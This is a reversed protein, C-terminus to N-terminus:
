SILQRRDGGVPNSSINVSNFSDPEYEDIQRPEDEAEMRKNRMFMIPYKHGYEVLRGIMFKIKETQQFPQEIRIQTFIVQFIKGLCRIM